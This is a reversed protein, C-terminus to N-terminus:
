EWIGLKKQKSSKETVWNKHEKRFLYEALLQEYGKKYYSIEITASTTNVTGRDISCGSEGADLDIETMQLSFVEGKCTGMFIPLELTYGDQLLNSIVPDQHLANYYFSGQIDWRMEKAAKYPTKLSTRKIDFPQVTKEHHNIQVWDLYGNCITDLFEPTVRYQYHNEVDPDDKFWRETEEDIRILAAETQLITYDSLSLTYVKDTKLLGLFERYYAKFAFLGKAITYDKTSKSYEAKDRGLQFAQRITYGENVFRAISEIIVKKKATPVNKEKSVYFEKHLQDKDFLMLELATGMITDNTDKGTALFNEPSKELKKLRSPSPKYPKDENYIEELLNRDLKVSLRSM